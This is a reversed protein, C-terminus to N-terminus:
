GFAIVPTHSSSTMTILLLLVVKSSHPHFLPCCPSLSDRPCVGGNKIANDNIIYM